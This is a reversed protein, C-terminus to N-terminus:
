VFHDKPDAGWRKTTIQWFHISLIRKVVPSAVYRKTTMM